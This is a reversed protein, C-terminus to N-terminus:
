YFHCKSVRWFKVCHMTFMQVNISSPYFYFLNMCNIPLSARSGWTSIDVLRHHKSTGPYTFEGTITITKSGYTDYEHVRDTNVTDDGWDVLVPTAMPLALSLTRGLEEQYRLAWTSVFPFGGWCDVVLGALDKGLLSTLWALVRAEAEPDDM